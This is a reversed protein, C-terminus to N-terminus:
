LQARAEVVSINMTVEVQWVADGSEVTMRNAGEVLGPLSKPACLMDASVQLHLPQASESFVFTHHTRRPVGGSEPDGYILIAESNPGAVGRVDNARDHIDVQRDAKFHVKMVPYPLQLEWEGAQAREAHFRVLCGRFSSDLETEFRLDANAPLPLDLTPLEHIAPPAQIARYQWTLLQKGPYYSLGRKPGPASRLRDPQTRLESLSLVDSYDAAPIFLGRDVDFLHWDDDWFIETVVHGQEQKENELYVLRAELGVYEALQCLHKATGDCLCVGLDNLVLLAHDTDAGGADGHEIHERLFKFLALSLLEPHQNVGGCSEIVEDFSWLKPKDNGLLRPTKIATSGVNRLTYSLLRPESGPPFFLDVAPQDSSLRFQLQHDVRPFFLPSKHILWLIMAFLM